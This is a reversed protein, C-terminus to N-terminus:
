GRKAAGRMAHLEVDVPMAGQDITLAKILTARAHASSETM